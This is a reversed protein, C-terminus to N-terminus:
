RFHFHPGFNLLSLLYTVSAYNPSGFMQSFSGTFITLLKYDNVTKLFFARRHPKITVLIGNGM